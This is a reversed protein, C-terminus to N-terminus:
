PLKNCNKTECIRVFYFKNTDLGALTFISKDLVIVLFSIIWFDIKKSVRQLQTQASEHTECKETNFLLHSSERKVTAEM